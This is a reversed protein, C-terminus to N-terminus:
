LYNKFGYYPMEIPSKTAEESYETISVVQGNIIPSILSFRKLAIATRTKEDLM